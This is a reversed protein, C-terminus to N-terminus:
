HQTIFKSRNQGRTLTQVWARQLWTCWQTVAPHPYSPTVRTLIASVLEEEDLYTYKEHKWITNTVFKYRFSTDVWIILNQISSNPNFAVTNIYKWNLSRVIVLTVWFCYKPYVLTVWILSSPLEITCNSQKLLLTVRTKWLYGRWVHCIHLLNGEDEFWTVRTM